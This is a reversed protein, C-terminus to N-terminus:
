DLRTLRSYLSANTKCQLLREVENAKRVLGALKQLLPLHATPTYVPVGICFFLRVDDNGSFAIGHEPDETLGVSLCLRKVGNSRAHPFAVHNGMVTSINEERRVLDEIFRDRDQIVDGEAALVDVFQVLVDRTTGAKLGRVIWEKRLIDKIKIM